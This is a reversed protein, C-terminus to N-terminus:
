ANPRSSRAPPARPYACHTREQDIDPAATLSTQSLAPLGEIEDAAGAIEDDGIGALDLVPYVWCVLLSVPSKLDAGLVAAVVHEITERRAPGCRPWALHRLVSGRRRRRRAM